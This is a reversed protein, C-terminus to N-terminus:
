VVVIDEAAAVMALDGRSTTLSSHRSKVGYWNRRRHGHPARRCHTSHGRPTVSAQLPSPPWCM